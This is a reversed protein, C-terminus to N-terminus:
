TCPLNPVPYTLYLTLYTCPLTPYPSNPYRTVLRLLHMTLSGSVVFRVTDPVSSSPLRVLYENASLSIKGLGFPRELRFRLARTIPSKTVATGM